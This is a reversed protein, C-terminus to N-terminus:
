TIVHALTCTCGHTCRANCSLIGGVLNIECTLCQVIWMCMYRLTFEYHAVSFPSYPKIVQFQLLFMLAICHHRKNVDFYQVFKEFILIFLFTVKHECNDRNYIILKEMVKNGVEVAPFEVCDKDLYVTHKRRFHDTPLAM